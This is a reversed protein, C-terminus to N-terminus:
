KLSALVTRSHAEVAKEDVGPTEDSRDWHNKPPNNQRERKAVYTYVTELENHQPSLPPANSSQRDKPSRNNADSYVNLHSILLRTSLADWAVCTGSEEEEGSTLIQLMGDAHPKNWCCLCLSLAKIEIELRTVIIIRRVLSFMHHHHLGAGALWCYALGFLFRIDRVPYIDCALLSFRVRGWSMWDCQCAQWKQTDAPIISCRRASLFLYFINHRAHVATSCINPQRSGCAFTSLVDAFQRWAAKDLFRKHCPLRMRYLNNLDDRCYLVNFMAPFRITVIHKYTEIPFRHLRGHVTRTVINELETIM